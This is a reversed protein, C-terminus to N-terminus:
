KNGGGSIKNLAEKARKNKPDLELVKKFSEKAKGKDGKKLYAEGLGSYGEVMQPNSAVAKSFDELALDMGGLPPPIVMRAYGRAVLAYPNDPNIELAKAFEQFAEMGFRIKQNLDNSTQALEGLAQGLLAHADSLDPNTQIIGEFTKRADDFKKNKLSEKGKELLEKIKEDPLAKKVPTQVPLNR